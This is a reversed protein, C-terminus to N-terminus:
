LKVVLGRPHRGFQWQRSNLSSGAICTVLRRLADNISPLALSWDLRFAIEQSYTVARRSAQGAKKGATVSAHCGERSKGPQRARNQTLPKSHLIAPMFPGIKTANAAFNRSYNGSSLVRFKNTERAHHDMAKAGAVPPSLIFDFDM